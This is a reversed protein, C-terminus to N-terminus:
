MMHVDQMVVTGTVTHTGVINPNFTGTGDGNDTVSTGSISVSNTNIYQINAFASIEVADIWGDNDQSVVSCFKVALISNTLGTADCIGTSVINGNVM